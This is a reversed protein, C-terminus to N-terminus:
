AQQSWTRAVTQMIQLSRPLGAANGVEETALNARLSSSEARRRDQRGGSLRRESEQSNWALRIRKAIATKEIKWNTTRFKQLLLPPLLFHDDKDTKTNCNKVSLLISKLIGSPQQSTSSEWHAKHSHNRTERYYKSNISPFFSIKKREFM